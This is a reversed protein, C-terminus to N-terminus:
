KSLLISDFYKLTSYNYRRQFEQPSISPQEGTMYSVYEEVYRAVSVQIREINARVEAYEDADVVATNSSLYDTNKVIIIKTFDLGSKTRQSRASNKFKYAYKHTINSRFPVCIFYDYHTQLLLCNYPRNSKSLLEPYESQPYNSYFQATLNLIQYDFSEM